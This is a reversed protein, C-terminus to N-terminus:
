TARRVFIALQLALHKPQWGVQQVMRLGALKSGHLARGHSDAYRANRPYAAIASYHYRRNKLLERYQGGERFAKCSRVRRLARQWLEDLTSLWIKTLGCSWCRSLLCGLSIRNLRPRASRLWVRSPPIQFPLIQLKVCAGSAWSGLSRGAPWGGKVEQDAQVIGDLLSAQFAILLIGGFFTFAGALGTIKSPNCAFTESPLAHKLRSTQCWRLRKHFLCCSKAPANAGHKFVRKRALSAALGLDRKLTFKTAM